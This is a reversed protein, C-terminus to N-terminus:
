KITKGEDEKAEKKFEGTEEVAKKLEKQETENVKKAAKGSAGVEVKEHRVKDLLETFSKKLEEYLKEVKNKGKIEKEIKDISENLAKYEEAHKSVYGLLRAKELEQKAQDLLKTAEDKKEKDLKSAMATLEQAALLSAPVVIKTGVLTNLGEALIAIAEDKKGQDLAEHAKKTAVPYLDMPIFVTTIDIEDKMPLLVDRAAQVRFDGLLQKAIKVRAKIQDPAAGFRYLMIENEVPVLKLDPNEKLAKAFSDEAEKLLKKAEDVKDTEIKNIAAITKKLGEAIDKSAGKLAESQKHIEKSIGPKLKVHSSSFYTDGQADTHKLKKEIKSKHPAEGAGAKQAEAQLSTAGLLLTAAITSLTLLKKM